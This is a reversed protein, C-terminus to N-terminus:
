GSTEFKHHSTSKLYQVEYIQGIVIYLFHRISFVQLRFGFLNLLAVTVFFIILQSRLVLRLVCSTSQFWTTVDHKKLNDDNSLKGLFIKWVLISLQLPIFHKWILSPWSLFSVKAVAFTKVIKYHRFKLRLRLSFLVTMNQIAHFSLQTFKLLLM